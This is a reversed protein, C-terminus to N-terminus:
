EDKSVESEIKKSKKSFFRGILGSIGDTVMDTISVIKDTTFDIISFLGNLSQVKDNVDEVVRDVKNITKILRVGLIICVILLIILLLNIVIPLFIELFELFM